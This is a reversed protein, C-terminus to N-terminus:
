PALGLRQALLRGRRNLRAGHKDGNPREALDLEILRNVAHQATKTGMSEDKSIKRTSVLEASDFASLAALVTREATTLAFEDPAQEESNPRDQQGDKPRDEENTQMAPFAQALDAVLRRNREFRDIQEPTIREAALLDEHGYQGFPTMGLEILARALEDHEFHPAAQSLVIGGEREERSTETYLPLSALIGLMHLKHLATKFAQKRNGIIRGGSGDPDGSRVISALAEAQRLVESLLDRPSVKSSDRELTGDQNWKFGSDAM